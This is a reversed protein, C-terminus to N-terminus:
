VFTHVLLLDYRNHQKLGVSSCQLVMKSGREVHSHCQETHCRDPSLGNEWGLLGVFNRRCDLLLIVSMYTSKM